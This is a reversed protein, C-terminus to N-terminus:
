LLKIRLSDDLQKAARRKLGEFVLAAFPGRGNRFETTRINFKKLRYVVASPSLHTYAAITKVTLGFSALMLCDHDQQKALPAVAWEPENKAGWPPPLPEWKALTWNQEDKM